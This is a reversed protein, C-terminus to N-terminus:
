RKVMACLDIVAAEFSADEGLATDSLGTGGKMQRDAEGLRILMQM